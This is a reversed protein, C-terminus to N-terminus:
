NTSSGRFLRYVLGVVALVMFLVALGSAIPFAAIIFSGILLWLICLLLLSKSRLYIPIMFLFVMLGIATEINFFTQALFAQMWGLFNGEYFFLWFNGFDVYPLVVGAQSNVSFVVSSSASGGASNAAYAYFTYTGNAFGVKSSAATYTQNYSYVWSSGNKINWWVADANTSSLSVPITSTLYTMNQPKGIAVTPLGPSTGSAPIAVSFVVTETDLYGATNNAYGYFTYTGNAFGTMFYPATYEISSAYVWSSGNKVNFLIKDVVGGSTSLSVLIGGTTYTMNTPQSITLAFPTPAPTPSPTPTPASTPAPTPTPTVVPVWSVTVTVGGIATVSAVKSAADYSLVNAGAASVPEGLSGCYIHVTGATHQMYTLLQSAFVTQVTFNADTSQLGYQGGAVLTMFWYEPYTANGSGEQYLDTFTQNASFNFATGYSPMTLYTTPPVTVTGLTLGLLPALLM